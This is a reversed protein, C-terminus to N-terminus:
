RYFNIHSLLKRKVINLEHKRLFGQIFKFLFLFNTILCKDSELKAM